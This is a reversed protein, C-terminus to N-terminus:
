KIDGSESPMEESELQKVLKFCMEAAEAKTIIRNPKFENSDNGQIIKYATLNKVAQLAWAPITNADKYTLTDTSDTLSLINNIMVAAEKRTLTNYPNLYLENGNASGKIIGKAYALKAAEVLWSPTSDQDAFTVNPIEITADENSETIALLYLMFDSRTIERNPYFYYRSGIEEGIIIGRAALHSASYNAWHEQMDIYNFPIIEEAPQKITITITAINSENTGDSAKYTFSDSGVYDLDPTYTFDEKTTDTHVLTGHSPQDVITYTLTSDEITSKVIFSATLITNKDIEIEDDEATIVLQEGSESPTTTEGSESPTTTEGSESPTTTEGSESPTTTEGSESPTTTEGSESPITTEGSESPTTTEGSETPTTTEGAGQSTDSTALVFNIVFTTLITCATFLALFRKKM